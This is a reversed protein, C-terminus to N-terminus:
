TEFPPALFLAIQVRKRTQELTASMQRFITTDGTRTRTEGDFLPRCDQPTQLEHRAVSSRSLPEQPGKRAKEAGESPCTSTDRRLDSELDLMAAADARLRV